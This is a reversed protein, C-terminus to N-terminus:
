GRARVVAWRAPEADARCRALRAPLAERRAPARRRGVPGVAAALARAVGHRGTPTIQGGRVNVIDDVLAANWEIGDADVGVNCEITGLDLQLADDAM